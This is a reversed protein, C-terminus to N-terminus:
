KCAGKPQWDSPSGNPKTSDHVVVAFADRKASGTINLKMPTNAPAVMGEGARARRAGSPMEVCQEGTPLYWLEPGPHTHVISLTNDEPGLNFETVHMMYSAAPPIPPVPGVEAVFVGERSRGSKPALTLLWIKGAWEVLASAPTEARQAAERTSFTEVRLFLIGKPLKTFQKSALERAQGSGVM